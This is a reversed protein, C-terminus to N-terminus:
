RTMRPDHPDLSDIGRINITTQGGHYYLEIAWSHGCEGLMPIRISEGKHEPPFFHQNNGAHESGCLPCLIIMNDFCVSDVRPLGNKITRSEAQYIYNKREDETKLALFEQLAELEFWEGVIWADNPSRCDYNCSGGHKAHYGCKKRGHGGKNFLKHFRAEQDGEISALIELKENRFEARLEVLRRLLNHTRGIKIRDISDSIFYTFWGDSTM